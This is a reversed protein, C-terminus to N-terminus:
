LNNTDTSERYPVAHLLHKKFPLGSVYNSNLIGSIYNSNALAIQTLKKSKNGKQYFYQFLNETDVFYYILTAWKLWSVKFHFKIIIIWKIKTVNCWWMHGLTAIVIRSLQTYNLM